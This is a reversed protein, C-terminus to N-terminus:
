SFTQLNLTATSVSTCSLIPWAMFFKTPCMLWLMRQYLVPRYCISSALTPSFVFNSAQTVVNALSGGDMFELAISIAGERYFAGFFGIITPCTCNYLSQIERILQDRKAQEFTNIVKLALRLNGNNACAYSAELVVSSSGQGIIEGIKLEEYILKDHTRAMATGYMLPSPADVRMSCGEADIRMGDRNFVDDGVDFSKTVNPSGNTIGVDIFLKQKRRLSM